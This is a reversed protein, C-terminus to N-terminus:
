HCVCLHSPLELDLRPIVVVHLEYSSIVPTELDWESQEACDRFFQRGLRGDYWRTEVHQWGSAAGTCGNEDWATRSKSLGM